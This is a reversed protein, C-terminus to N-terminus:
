QGGCDIQRRDLCVGVSRPRAANDAPRNTECWEIVGNANGRRNGERCELEWGASVSRIAEHREQVMACACPCTYLRVRVSLHVLACPLHHRLSLFGALLFVSVSLHTGSAHPLIFGLACATEAAATERVAPVRSLARSISVVFLSVGVEQALEKKMEDQIREEVKRAQKFGPADTCDALAPIRTPPPHPGSDSLSHAWSRALPRPPQTHTRARARSRLCRCTCELVMNGVMVGM